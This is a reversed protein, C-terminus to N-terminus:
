HGSDYTDRLYEVIRDSEDMGDVGHDADVIVPVQTRGTLAEVEDRDDHDPPVEHTEYTVGLDDLERKVKACYPCGPLAYFQVAAM